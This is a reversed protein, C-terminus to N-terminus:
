NIARIARSKVNIAEALDALRACNNLAFASKASKRNRLIPYRKKNKKELNPQALHFIYPM